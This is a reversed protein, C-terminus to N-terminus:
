DARDAVLAYEDEDSTGASRWDVTTVRLGLPALIARWTDPHLPRGPSLDAVIPTVSAAWMRPNTGVVVAAGGSRLATAMREGLLIAGPVTLRDAGGLVVVGALAGAAVGQLHDLVDEGPVVDAAVASATPDLAYADVGEGRLRTVLAAANGAAVLVRGSRGSVASSVADSWDARLVPPPLDPLNDADLAPLLRELAALRQDVQRLALSVAHDFASIQRSLHDFQWATLRRITKKVAAGARIDSAVPAQADIFSTRDLEELVSDFDGTGRDQPALSEFLADLEQELGGLRGSERLARAEAAVERMLEATDLPEDM